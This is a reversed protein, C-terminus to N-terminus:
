TPRIAGASLPAYLDCNPIPRCFSRVEFNTFVRVDDTKIALSVMKSKQIWGFEYRRILRTRERNFTIGTGPWAFVAGDIRAFAHADKTRSPVVSLHVFPTNSLDAVRRMAARFSVDFRAAVHKIFSYSVARLQLQRDIYHMPMLIEAALLNSIREEESDAHGHWGAKRFAVEQNSASTERLLWHGLEHALTFRQRVRSSLTTLTVRSTGKDDRCIMGDFQETPVQEVSVGVEHALAFVNRATVGGGSEPFAEDVLRKCALLLDHTGFREKLRESISM